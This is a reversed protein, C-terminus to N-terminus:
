EEEPPTFGAPHTPHPLLCKVAIGNFFGFDLLQSTVTAQTITPANSTVDIKGVYLRVKTQKGYTESEDDDDIDVEDLANTSQAITWGSVVYDQALVPPDAEEDAEIYTVNAALYIFVTRDGTGSLTDPTDFEDFGDATLAEEGNTGDTITSRDSSIQFTIVGEEGRGTTLFFPTSNQSSGSTGGPHYFIPRDRLQEIARVCEGLCKMVGAMGLRPHVRRPTTIKGPTLARKMCLLPFFGM